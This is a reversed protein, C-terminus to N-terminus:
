FIKIKNNKCKIVHTNIIKAVEGVVELKTSSFVHSLFFFITNKSIQSLSIHVSLNRTNNGHMHTNCVM